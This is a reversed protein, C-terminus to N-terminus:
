DGCSDLGLQEAENREVDLRKRLCQIQSWLFMTVEDDIDPLLCEAMKLLINCKNYDRNDLAEYVKELQSIVSLCQENYSPKKGTASIVIRAVGAERYIELLQAIYKKRLEKINSGHPARVYARFEEGLKHLEEVNGTEKVEKLKALMSKAEEVFEKKRLYTYARTDRKWRPLSLYAKRSALDIDNSEVIDFSSQLSSIRSRLKLIKDYQVYMLGYEKIKEEIAAVGSKVENFLRHAGALDLMIFKESCEGALHNIARRMEDLEIEELTKESKVKKNGTAGKKRLSEIFEWTDEDQKDRSAAFEEDEISTVHWGCCFTCYYSRSPTKVSSSAIEDKNFKIFNDAKSQSEFLMKARGCGICFMRNNTPKM